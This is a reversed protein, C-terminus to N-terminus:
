ILSPTLIHPLLPENSSKPRVFRINFQPSPPTNIYHPPSAQSPTAPLPAPLPRCAARRPSSHRAPSPHNERNASLSYPRAFHTLAAPYPVFVCLSNLELGALNPPHPSPSLVADIAKVFRAAVTAPFSRGARRAPLINEGSEPSELRKVSGKREEGGTWPGGLSPLGLELGEWRRRELGWPQFWPVRHAWGLELARWAWSWPRRIPPRASLGPPGIESVQARASRTERPRWYRM